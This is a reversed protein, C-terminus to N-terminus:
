HSTWLLKEIVHFFINGYIPKKPDLYDFLQDMVVKQRYFSKKADIDQAAAM